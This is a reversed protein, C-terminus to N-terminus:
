NFDPEHGITRSDSTEEHYINLWTSIREHERQMEKQEGRLELARKYDFIDQHVQAPDHVQYFDLTSDGVNIKVTGLNMLIQFLNKREHEVSLVNKLPATQSEERGLPSKERDIITDETLRYIDNDWDRYQYWWWFAVIFCFFFGIVSVAGALVSSDDRTFSMLSLVSGVLLAILLFTPLYLRRVLVYWHKHYTINGKEDVVRMGFPKSTGRQRKQKKEITLQQPIKSEEENEREVPDLMNKISKRLANLKAKEAKTRERKILREILEVMQDPMGVKTMEMEGTFTKVTVDGYHLIRGLFDTDVKVSQIASIPPEQRSDSALLEHELWVVRQSTIIFYDNRWDFYNWLLWLFTGVAFLPVIYVLLGVLFGGSPGILLILIWVCFAFAVLPLSTDRILAIVHRRKILYIVEGDLLWDFKFRQARRHTDAISTLFLKVKSCNQVMWNFDQEDLYFLTTPALTKVSANRYDRYLLGEEGFHDGPELIGSDTPSEVKERWFKVRGEIIVYFRDPVAGQSFVLEDAPMQKVCMRKAINAINEDSLEAVLPSQKLLEVKRELQIAM